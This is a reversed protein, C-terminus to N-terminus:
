KYHSIWIKKIFGLSLTSLLFGITPVIASLFPRQFHLILLFIVISGYTLIAITIKRTISTEWTKDIEVRANRKQIEDIKKELEEISSTGGM